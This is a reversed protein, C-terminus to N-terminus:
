ARREVLLGSLEKASSNGADSLSSHLTEALKRLRNGLEVMEESPIERIIEGTERDTVKILTRGSEADIRFELQRNVSQVQESLQVVVEAAKALQQRSETPQSQEAAVAQRASQTTQAPKETDTKTIQSRRLAESSIAVTGPSVTQQNVAITM